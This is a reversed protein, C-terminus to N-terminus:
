NLCAFDIWSFQIGFWKCKGIICSNAFFYSIEDIKSSVINELSTYVLYIALLHHHILKHMMLANEICAKWHCWCHLSPSSYIKIRSFEQKFRQFILLSWHTSHHGTKKFMEFAVHIIDNSKQIGSLIINLTFYAKHQCLMYKIPEFSLMTFQIKNAERACEIHEHETETHNPNQTDKAYKYLYIHTYAHASYCASSQM